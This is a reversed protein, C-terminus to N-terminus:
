KLLSRLEPDLLGDRDVYQDKQVNPSAEKTNDALERIHLPPLSMIQGEINEGYCLEKYVKRTTEVLQEPRKSLEEQMTVITENLRLNTASSVAIEKQLEENQNSQIKCVALSAVLLTVLILIGITTPAKLLAIM